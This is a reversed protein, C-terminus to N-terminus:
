IKNFGVLSLGLDTLVPRKILTILEDIRYGKSRYEYPLTPFFTARSAYHNSTRLNEFGEIRKNITEQDAMSKPMYSLYQVCRYNPKSRNLTPGTNCHVLRSDWIVLSGAQCTLHKPSGCKELFFDNEKEDLPYWDSPTKIGFKETLEGILKHSGEYYVFTADGPNVDLGTVLGQIGDLETKYATQDLHFWLDYEQHKYRPILEHPVLWSAGDFSTLLDTPEVNYFKAWINVISKKSRIDWMHQAHSINWTQYMMSNTPRLVDFQDWTTADLRSIPIDWGQTIHEFFDWMGNFMADCETQDLVGPIIMLGEQELRDRIQQQEVVINLEM